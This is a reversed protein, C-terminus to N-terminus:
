DYKEVGSPTHSGGRTGMDRTSIAKRGPQSSEPYLAEPMVCVCVCVCVCVSDCQGEDRM